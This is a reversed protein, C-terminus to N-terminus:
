LTFKNKLKEEILTECFEVSFGTMIMIIQIFKNRFENMLIIQKRRILESNFKGNEIKKFM